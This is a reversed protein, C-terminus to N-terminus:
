FEPGIINYSLSIIRTMKTYISHMLRFEPVNNFNLHFNHVLVQTTCSTESSAEVWDGTRSKSDYGLKNKM